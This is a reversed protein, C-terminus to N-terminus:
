GHHSARLKQHICTELTKRARSIMMDVASAKMGFEDGIQRSSKDASYRQDLIARARETLTSLCSKMAELRRSAYGPEAHRSEADEAACNLQDLAAQDLSLAARHHQKYYQLLVNRAIGRMWAGFSRSPDFKGANELAITFVEQVLDEAQQRQGTTALFYATLWRHNQEVIARVWVDNSNM